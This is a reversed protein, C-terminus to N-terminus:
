ASPTTPRPAFAVSVSRAHFTAFASAGTALLNIIAAVLMGSPGPLAVAAVSAAEHLQAVAPPDGATPTPKTFESKLTGCSIVSLSLSTLLLLLVIRYSCLIRTM